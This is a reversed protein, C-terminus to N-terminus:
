LINDLMQKIDALSKRDQETLDNERTSELKTAFELATMALLDQPDNIKYREKLKDINAQIKRESAKVKDEETESITLPYTRGSITINVKKSM